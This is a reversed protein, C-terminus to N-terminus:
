MAIKNLESCLLYLYYNGLLLFPSILTLKKKKQTFSSPTLFVGAKIELRECKQQTKQKKPKKKRKNRQKSKNKKIVAIDIVKVVPFLLESTLTVVCM